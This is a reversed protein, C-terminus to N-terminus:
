GTEARRADSVTAETPMVLSEALRNLRERVEDPVPEGNTTALVIRDGSAADLRGVLVAPIQGTTPELSAEIEALIGDVVRWATPALLRGGIATLVDLFEMREDPDRPYMRIATM